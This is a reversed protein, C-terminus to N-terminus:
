QKKNKQAMAEAMAREEKAMIKTIDKGKQAKKSLVGELTLVDTVPEIIVKNDKLSVLAKRFKELGLEQRIKAPISIQGQSTITVFTGMQILFVM